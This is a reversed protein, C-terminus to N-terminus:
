STGTTLLDHERLLRAAHEIAAFPLGSREAIDLLSHTGDCLNLTWLLAQEQDPLDSGGLAQYLGRRGLQPEGKPSTNLYTDNQELVEIVRRYCRFSAGLAEPTILSLDDASTHYEPYEGHPTRTLRGVPLDFGPAGYQREDNGVPTFSRVETTADMTRLVHAAARDIPADGSRSQKYVFPGPDGVCAIVLGHKIRSLHEEHHDLWTLAGITAPVFVVRYTYRTSRDALHGALHTALAIGSLNDNAMSPHCVHCSLLVEEETEGPLVCEGYSLAGDELSADICVEYTGEELTELTRHRLCFGWAEDDYYATRYPVWNPRDPRTHLHPRLEELSMHADVPASYNVVHLNSEQFDVLRQGDEDKVYADRITWEKPVTWDFVRTGTPVERIELPLHEQVIGLTRRLGAGTISRCIPFLRRALAHMAEGATEEEGAKQTASQQTASHTM